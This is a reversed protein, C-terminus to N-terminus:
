ICCISVHVTEKKTNLATYNDYQKIFCQAKSKYEDIMSQSWWQRKIGDADYLRGPVMIFFMENFFLIVLNLDFLIKLCMTKFCKVTFKYRGSKEIGKTDFGHGIEHGVFSGIAAYNLVSSTALLWVFLCNCREIM